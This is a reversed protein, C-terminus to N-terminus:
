QLDITKKDGQPSTPSTSMKLPAISRKTRQEIEQSIREELDMKKNNM